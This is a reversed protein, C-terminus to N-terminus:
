FITVGSKLIGDVVVEHTPEKKLSISVRDSSDPGISVVRTVYGEKRIEILRESEVLSRYPSLGLKEEGGFRYVEAGQPATDIIKYPMKELPVHIDVSAESSVAVTSPYYGDKQVEFIKDIEIRQSYPVTGIKEVGGARYVCAGEESRITVVSIPVMTIHVKSPSRKNVMVTQPKYGDMWFEFETGEEVSIMAPTAAITDGFSRNCISVGPPTSTFRVARFGELAKLDVRYTENPELTLSFPEYGDKKLVVLEAKALKLELSTKGLMKGDLSTEVLAGTPVTHVTTKRIRQLGIKILKSDLPSVCIEREVYGAKRVIFKREGSFLSFSYPTTAVPEDNEFLTAQGPSSRLEFSACGSLLAILAPFLAASSGKVVTKKM